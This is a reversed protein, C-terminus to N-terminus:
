KEGQHKELQEIIWDINNAMFQIFQCDSPPLVPQGAGFENPSVECFNPWQGPTRIANLLKLEALKKSNEIESQEYACKYCIMYYSGHRPCSGVNKSLIGAGESM